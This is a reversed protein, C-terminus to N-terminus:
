LNYKPFFSFCFFGGFVAFAKTICDQSSDISAFSNQSRFHAEQHYRGWIEADETRPRQLVLDRPHHFGLCQSPRQSEAPRPSPGLQCPSMGLSDLDDFGQLRQPDSYTSVASSKIIKKRKNNRLLGKGLEWARLVSSATRLEPRPHMSCAFLPHPTPAKTLPHCPSFAWAPWHLLFSPTLFFRPSWLFLFLFRLLLVFVFGFFWWFWFLFRVACWLM